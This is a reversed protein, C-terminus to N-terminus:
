LTIKQYVYKEINVNGSETIEYSLRKMKGTIRNKRILFSGKKKYKVGGEDKETFLQVVVSPVQSLSSSDRLDDLTPEREENLKRLHSVVLVPIQLTKAMNQVDIIMQDIASTTGNKTDKEMFHLHDIVLLDNKEPLVSISKILEKTSLMKDSTLMGFTPPVASSSLSSRIRPEIFVGQELSCFLVRHGFSAIRSAFNLAVTTKGQHTPASILYLQEPLFTFYEDLLPYGTTLGKGWKDVMEQYKNTIQGGFMIQVNNEKETFNRSKMQCASDFTRRLEFSDIPPFVHTRNWEQFAMWATTEWAKRDTLSVMHGAVKIATQNREGEHAEPLVEMTKKYERRQESIVIPFDAIKDREYNLWEYKGVGSLESPPVVVYGGDGRVDMLKEGVRVTNRVGPKYKYWLHFGGSITKVKMKSDYTTISPDDIDLVTIGSIKGTAMGLANFDLMSCWVNIEQDTAYRQQYDAWEVVPKKEVKEGKKSLQVPFVSYGQNIYKKITEFKMNGGTHTSYIELITVLDM